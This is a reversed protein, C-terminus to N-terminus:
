WDGVRESGTSLYPEVRLVNFGRSRRLLEVMFAETRELNDFLDGRVSEAKFEGM